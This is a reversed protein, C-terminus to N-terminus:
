CNEPHTRGGGVVWRGDVQQARREDLWRTPADSPLVNKGTSDVTRAQGTDYCAQVVVGDAILTRKAWVVKTTGTNRLRNDRYYKAQQSISKVLEPTMVPALQGTSKGGSRMMVDLAARYGYYADIVPDGTPRVEPQGSGHAGDALPRDNRAPETARQVGPTTLAVDASGDRNCGTLLLAPLMTAIVVLSQSHM